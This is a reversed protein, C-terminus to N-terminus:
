LQSANKYQKYSHFVNYLVTCYKRICVPNIPRGLIIPIHNYNRLFAENSYLYPEANPFPFPFTLPFFPVSIYSHM